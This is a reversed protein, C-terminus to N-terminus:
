VMIPFFLRTLVTKEYELNMANGIILNVELNNKKCYENGYKILEDSLDLGIINQHGMKYLNITTRGAGCGLDLIKHEPKIYKKFIVKESEWLGVENIAKGYREVNSNLNYNNKINKIAEKENM